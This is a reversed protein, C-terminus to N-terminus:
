VSQGHCCLTCAFYSRHASLFSETGAVTCKIGLFLPVPRLPAALDGRGRGKREM